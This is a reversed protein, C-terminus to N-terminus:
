RGSEWLGVAATFRLGVALNILVAFIIRAQRLALWLVLGVLALTIVGNLAAGDAVTAFEEDSLAVSGTLRVKVGREATLGLKSSM